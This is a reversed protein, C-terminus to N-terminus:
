DKLYNGSPLTGYAVHIFNRPKYTFTPTSWRRFHTINREGLGGSSIQSARACACVRREYKM